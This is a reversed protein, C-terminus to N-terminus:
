EEGDSLSECLKNELIYNEPSDLKMQETEVERRWKEVKSKMENLYAENLEKAKFAASEDKGVVVVGIKDFLGNAAKKFEPLFYDLAEIYIQMHTKEHRLSLAYLCSEKDLDNLIYITPVYYGLHAKIAKPYLCSYGRSIEIQEVDMDFNFGDRVKTLGVPVFDKPMEQHNEKYKKETERRLYDEDKDFNYKLKGYSSTITVVPRGIVSLCEDRYEQLGDDALAYHVTFFGLILAFFVKKM